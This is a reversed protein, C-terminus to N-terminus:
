LSALRTVLKKKKAPVTTLQDEGVRAVVDVLDVVVLASRADDM